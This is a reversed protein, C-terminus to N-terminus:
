GRGLFQDGADRFRKEIVEGAVAGLFDLRGHFGGRRLEHGVGCGDRIADVGHERGALAVELHRAGLAFRTLELRSDRILNALHARLPVGRPGELLLSGLGLRLEFEEARGDGLRLSPQVGADRPEFGLEAIRLKVQLILAYVSSRLDLVELSLQPVPVRLHALRM